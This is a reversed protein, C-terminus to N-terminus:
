RRRAARGRRDARRARRRSSPRREDRLEDLRDLRIEAGEVDVLQKGGVVLLLRAPLEPGRQLERPRQRHHRGPADDDHGLGLLEHGDELGPVVFRRLGGFRRWALLGPPRDLFRGPLGLQLRELLVERVRRGVRHEHEHGALAQVAVQLGDLQELLQGHHDVAVRQGTAAVGAAHTFASAAPSPTRTSGAAARSSAVSAPPSM